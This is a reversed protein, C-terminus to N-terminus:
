CRVLVWAWNAPFWHAIINTALRGEGRTCAWWAHHREKFPQSGSGFGNREAAAKFRGKMASAWM